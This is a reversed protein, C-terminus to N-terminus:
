GGPPGNPRVTAANLAGRVLAAIAAAAAVPKGRRGRAAGPASM